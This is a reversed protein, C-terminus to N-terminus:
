SWGCAFAIRFERRRRRRRVCGRGTRGERRKRPVDVLYRLHTQSLAKWRLILIAINRTDGFILRVCFLFGHYVVITLLDLVVPHLIQVPYRGHSSALIYMCLKLGSCRRELELGGELGFERTIVVVAIKEVENQVRIPGHVELNWTYSKM